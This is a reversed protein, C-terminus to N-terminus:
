NILQWKSDTILIGDSAVSWIEQDSKLPLIEINAVSPIYELLGEDSRAGINLSYPGNILNPSFKVKINYIGNTINDLNLNGSRIEILKNNVPDTLSIGILLGKMQKKLHFSIDIEIEEQEYISKNGNVIVNKADFNENKPGSRPLKELDICTSVKGLSVYESVTKNIGGSFMLKGEELLVGKNCISQVQALNHSVFLITRGSDAVEQMKGICKRQFAIDGVALVEDIILIEPELHAAVAFALRLQMGSSYHKLPTDLFKEVGAFDVIEDFKSIIDQKRLGLISGNLFINERGTLESHFGTGVELLSAIRGRSIIKGSSPPTIKSLIKLLTSKGAGNKGIIGVSDGPYVDFSVDDLALFENKNIKDKSRWNTLSERLTLYPSGQGRLKYKKSIKNIEIIPKM